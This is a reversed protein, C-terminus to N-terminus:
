LDTEQSMVDYVDVVGRGVTSFDIEDDEGFETILDGQFERFFAKLNKTSDAGDAEDQLAKRLYDAALDSIFDTAEENVRSLNDMAAKLTYKSM